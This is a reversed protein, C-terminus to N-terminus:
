PIHIGGDRNGFGTFGTIKNLFSFVVTRFISNRVQTLCGEVLCAACQLEPVVLGSGVHYTYRRGENLGTIRDIFSYVVSRKVKCGEYFLM